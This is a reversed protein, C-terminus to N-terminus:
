IFRALWRVGSVKKVAKTVYEGMVQVAKAKEELRRKTEEEEKAKQALKERTKPMVPHAVLLCILATFLYLWCLVNYPM